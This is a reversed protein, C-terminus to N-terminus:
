RGQNLLQMQEDLSLQSKREAESRFDEGMKRINMQEQIAKEDDAVTELEKKQIPRMLEEQTAPREDGTREPAFAPSPRLSEVLALGGTPGLLATTGVDIAVDKILDAPDDFLEKVGEVGTTLIIATELLRNGKSKTKLDKVKEDYSEILDQDVKSKKLKKGKIEQSKTSLDELKTIQKELRSIQKENDEVINEIAVGAGVSKNELNIQSKAVAEDIVNPTDFKILPFQSFNKEGFRYIKGFVEKPSSQGIDNLFISNFNEAARVSLPLKDTDRTVQYHTLGVDGRTSHGLVRNAVDPGHEDAIASFVNKRLLGSTFPIKKGTRENIIDLKMDDFVKRVATNVKKDLTPLKNKFIRTNKETGDPDAVEALFQLVGNPMSSLRFNMAEGKNSIGLLTASGKKVHGYEAGQKIESGTTLNAIDRSRLGTLHKILLYGAAEYSGENVLRLVSRNIAKNIDAIPPLKVKKALRAQDATKINLGRAFGGTGFVKKKLPFEGADETINYLKRLDNEVSTLSTFAGESGVTDGLKVLLEKDKFVSFRDSTTLGVEKLSKLLPSFNRTKLEGTKKGKYNKTLELAEGITLNEDLKIAM